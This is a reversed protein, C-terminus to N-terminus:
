FKEIFINKKSKEIESFSKLLLFVDLDCQHTFTCFSKHWLTRRWEGFGFAFLFNFLIWLMWIYNRRSQRIYLFPVVALFFFSIFYFLYFCTQINRSCNKKREKKNTSWIKLNSLTKVCLALLFIFLYICKIDFVSKSIM